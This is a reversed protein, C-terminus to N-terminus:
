RLERGHLGRLAPSIALVMRALREAPRCDEDLRTFVTPIRMDQPTCQGAEGLVTALRQLAQRVPVTVGPLRLLRVATAALTRPGAHRCHARRLPVGHSPAPSASSRRSTWAAAYGQCDRKPKRTPAPSATPSHEKSTAPTSPPSPRSRTTPSTRLSFDAPGTAAPRGSAELLYFLSSHGAEPIILIRAGATTITGAYHSSTVRWTGATDDPQVTVADRASRRM